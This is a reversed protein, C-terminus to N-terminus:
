QGALEDLRNRLEGTQLVARSSPRRAPRSEPGYYVLTHSSSNAHTGPGIAAAVAVLLRTSAESREPLNYLHVRHIRESLRPLQTRAAGLLNSDEDCQLSRDGTSDRESGAGVSQYNDSARGGFFLSNGSGQTAALVKQVMDPVSTVEIVHDHGFGSVQGFQNSDYVYVSAM